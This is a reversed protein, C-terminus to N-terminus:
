YTDRYPLTFRTIRTMLKEEATGATQLRAFFAKNAPDSQSTSCFTRKLLELFAHDIAAGLSGNDSSGVRTTLFDVLANRFGLYYASYNPSTVLLPWHENDNSTASWSRAHIQRALFMEDVCAVRGLAVTVCSSLYQWFVINRTAADTFRFCELLQTRRHLSYLTSTYARMHQLVRKVPDPDEYPLMSYNNLHVKAAPQPGGKEVPRLLFRAVRGRVCALGQDAEILGLLKELTTTVVYDDQGCIMVNRAELQEMTRALKDLFGINFDYGQVGLWLGAYRQPCSEIFRRHEGSSNDSLVIYGPYREAELFELLRRVFPMGQYTPIILAFCKADEILM